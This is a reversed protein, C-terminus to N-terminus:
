ARIEFVHSIYYRATRLSLACASELVMEEALYHIAKVLDKGPGGKFSGRMERRGSKLSGETESSGGKLGVQMEM